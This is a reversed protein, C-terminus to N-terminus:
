PRLLQAGDSHTCDTGMRLLERENPKLFSNLALDQQLQQAEKDFVSNTCARRKDGCGCVIANRAEKAPNNVHGIGACQTKGTGEERQASQIFASLASASLPVTTKTVAGYTSVRPRLHLLGHGGDVVGKVRENSLLSTSDRTRAATATIPSRASPLTPPLNNPYSKRVTARSPKTKYGKSKDKLEKALEDITFSVTALM